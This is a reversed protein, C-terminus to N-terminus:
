LDRDNPYLFVLCFMGDPIERPLKTQLISVMKHTSREYVEQFSGRLNQDEELGFRQIMKGAIWLYCPFGTAEFAFSMRGVVSPIVPLAAEGFFAAGHRLVRTTREAIDYDTGYKSLFNDFVVWAEQCSNQCAAPLVEGFSQIISFMVELNELGDIVTVSSVSVSFGNSFSVAFKRWSKSPHWQPNVRYQM